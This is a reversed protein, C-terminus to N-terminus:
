SRLVRAQLSWVEERLEVQAVSTSVIFLAVRTCTSRLVVSVPLQLLQLVVRLSHLPAQSLAVDGDGTAALGDPIGVADDSTDAERTADCVAGSMLAEVISEVDAPAM